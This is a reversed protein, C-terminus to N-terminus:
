FIINKDIKLLLIWKSLLCYYILIKLTINLFNIIQISQAIIIKSITGNGKLVPFTGIIIIEDHFHEIIDDGFDILLRGKM